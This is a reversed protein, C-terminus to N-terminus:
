QLTGTIFSLAFMAVVHWQIITANESISFNCINVIQLPTATMLYSMIAYGGAASILAKIM